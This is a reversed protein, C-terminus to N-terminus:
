SKGLESDESNRLLLSVLVKSADRDKVHEIMAQLYSIATQYQNVTMKEISSVGIEAHV